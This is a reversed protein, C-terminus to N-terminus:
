IARFTVRCDRLCVISSQFTQDKLPRRWFLKDSDNSKLLIRMLRELLKNQHLANKRLAVSTSFKEVKQTLWAESSTEVTVEFVSGNLESKPSYSPQPSVLVHKPM